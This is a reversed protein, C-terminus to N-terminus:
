AEVNFSKEMNREAQRFLRLGDILKLTYEGFDMRKSRKISVILFVM